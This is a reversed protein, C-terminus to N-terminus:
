SRTVQMGSQSISFDVFRAGTQGPLGALRRRLLSAAEPDKALLLAYGGGGAGLLKAGALLDTGEEFIARVAPPDTGHDLRCNLRWSNDVCVCLENWDGRLLAEFTLRANDRIDALARLHPSSNLFMGRVIEHLIGSARRTIGTYYLMAVGSRSAEIMDREPAWRLSLEQANGPSTEALKMGRYIGGAQDQWGGCTGLMQEVATTLSVLESRDWNLGCADSLTGLLTGALISSTGLGSGKPAAALLSVELGGGFEQLQERLTAHPHHLDADIAGPHFGALCLAAKALAFPDGQNSHDALQARTEVRCQVGLDISRLTIVPESAVRIFVQVPPQGNIEAAVNVVCGGEMFCYPPTDTWGGALDLRVPSRGWVIQDQLTTRRPERVLHRVSDLVQRKLQGFAEKEAEESASPDAYRLIESRLMADHIADFGKLDPPAEINGKPYSDAVSSLDLRFFPNTKHHARMVPMANTMRKSRAASLAAIDAQECIEMASLRQRLFLERCDNNERPENAHLWHVFEASMENSKVVPFIRALQLDTEADLGCSPLDMGRRRFWEKAPQGLWLCKEDGLLGSFSDDFGYFRLCYNGGRIPVVDLCTGEQLDLRPFGRPVGTIVQKQGLRQDDELSSNEVWLMRNSPDRMTFAFDSNQVYVDPHPKRDMPASRLQDARNNQLASVSEILQRNTGLHYFSAKELAVVASDLSAVEADRRAPNCGLAPGFEGYLEYAGVKGERFMEKGADWGCRTLLLEIARRGLLWVGADVTFLRETARRRIEEPRPKQLFFDIKEPSTRNSFFVGFESATEPSVWMGLALLDAQPLPPLVRPFDLLVDGSCVMLPYDTGSQEMIRGFEPQMYDLLTGDIRQGRSWRMVPLPILIKGTAAYAPLRRSQGGALIATKPSDLLWRKFSDPCGMKKWCEHLLHILGGGSGLKTGPPDCSAFWEPFPYRGSQGFAEAMAPPLSLLFQGKAAM